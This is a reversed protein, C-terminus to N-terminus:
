LDIGLKINEYSENPHLINYYREVNEKITDYVEQIKRKKITSFETYIIESLKLHNKEIDLKSSNEDLKIIKENIDSFLKYLIKLREDKESPKIFGILDESKIEIEKLKTELQINLHNLDDKSFEDEIFLNINILKQFNYLSKIELDIGDKFETLEEFYDMKSSLDTLDKNLSRIKDKANDLSLKLKNNSEKLSELNELRENIKKLLEENEIKNECLPCNKTEKDIIKLSNKLIEMVPLESQDHCDIVKKQNEAESFEQNIEVMVSYIEKIIRLIDKLANLLENDSSKSMEYIKNMCEELEKILSIPELDEEELLQNITPLIYDSDQIKLINNIEETNKQINNEIRTVEEKLYKKAQYMAKDINELEDIGIINSIFNYRESPSKNILDLIQSRRLIFKGNKALNISDKLSEPFTPNSNFTRSIIHTGPNIELSVSSENLNKTNPGNDKIALPGKSKLHSIKGTFFFEIADVISSKGTGNEGHLLLSKGKLDLDITEPIGRFACIKISKIKM